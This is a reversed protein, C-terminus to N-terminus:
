AAVIQISIVITHYMHSLAICSEDIMRKESMVCYRACEDNDKNPPTSSCIKKVEFGADGIIAAPL